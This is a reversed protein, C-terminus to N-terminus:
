TPGVDDHQLQGAQLEIADDDNKILAPDGIKVSIRSSVNRVEPSIEGLRNVARKDSWM